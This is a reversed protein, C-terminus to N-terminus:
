ARAEDVLLVLHGFGELIRRWREARTRWGRRRAGIVILSQRDFVIPIAERIDRCVYVNVHADIGEAALRDLFGETEIRSRGPPADIPAGLPVVRFDVLRVEGHGARALDEAVRLAALTGDASTFLVSVDRTPVSDALRGNARREPASSAAPPLAVIQAM